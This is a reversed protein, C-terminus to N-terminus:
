TWIATSEKTNRWFPFLNFSYSASAPRHVDVQAPFRCLFLILFRCRQHQGSCLVRATAINADSILNAPVSRDVHNPRRPRHRMEIEIPFNRLTRQEKFPETFKTAQSTEVFAAGAKGIPGQFHRCQ